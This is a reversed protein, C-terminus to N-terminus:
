FSIATIFSIILAIAVFVMCGSGSSSYNSTSRNSSSPYSSQSSCSSSSRGVTTSGSSYSSQTGYSSSAYGRSSNNRNSTNSSSTYSPRPISRYLNINTIYSLPVKEFILVEAQYFEKEDSSLDFHNSQRVTSFHINQAGDYGDRIIAGNRTANRDSFKTGSIEVVSLDIELIVPDSIRGDNKAVYMMPHNKTFCLRVYNGLGRNSDLTRSTESGGPRNINIGYRDCAKWSYLGRNEIISNINSRDTFHYLKNIGKSKLYEVLTPSNCYGNITM